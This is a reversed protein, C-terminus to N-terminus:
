EDGLVWRICARDLELRDWIAQLGFLLRRLPLDFGAEGNDGAAVVFVRVDRLVQVLGLALAPGTVLGCTQLGIGSCFTGATPM